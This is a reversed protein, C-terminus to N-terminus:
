AMTGIAARAARQGEIWEPNASDPIPAMVEGGYFISYKILSNEVMDMCAQKSQDWTNSAIHLWRDYERRLDAAYGKPTYDLWTYGRSYHTIAFAEYMAVTKAFDMNM